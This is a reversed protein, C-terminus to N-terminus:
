NEYAFWDDKLIEAKSCPGSEYLDPANDGAILRGSVEILREPLSRPLGNTWWQKMLPKEWAIAFIM